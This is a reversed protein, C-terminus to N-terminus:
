VIQAQAIAAVISALHQIFHSEYIRGELQSNITRKNWM